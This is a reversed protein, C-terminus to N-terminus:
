NDKPLHHTVLSIQDYCKNIEKHGKINIRGKYKCGHTELTNQQTEKNDHFININNKKYLKNEQKNHEHKKINQKRIGVLIKISRAAKSSLSNSQITEYIRKNNNINYKNTKIQNM